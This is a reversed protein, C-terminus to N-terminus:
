DVDFDQVVTPTLAAAITLNELVNVNTEYTDYKGKTVYMRYEGQVLGFNAIGDKDSRNRYPHLLVDANSIPLGSEKDTVKVTLACDPADVVKFGFSSRSELHPIGNKLEPFKAILNYIGATKPAQLEIETWYLAETGPWLDERLIGTAVLTGQQDLLEIEKGTLQCNASCSIGVKMKLPMGAAVPSDVDWVVISTQHQEKVEFTFSTSAETHIVGNKEQEPFVAKWTYEGSIVPAKFVLPDMENTGYFQNFYFERIVEGDQTIIKGKNTRLDCGDSCVVRAKVVTDAGAAVEAPPAQVMSITIAHDQVVETM